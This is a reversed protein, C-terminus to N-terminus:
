TNLSRRPTRQCLLGGTFPRSSVDSSTLYLMSRNMLSFPLALRCMSAETSRTSVGSLYVTRTMRLSGKAQNRSMITLGIATQMTALSHTSFNPSRFFHSATTPM